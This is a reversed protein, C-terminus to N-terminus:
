SSAYGSNVAFVSALDGAAAKVAASVSDADGNAWVHSGNALMEAEREREWSSDCLVVTELDDALEAMALKCGLEVIPLDDVASALGGGAEGKVSDDAAAADNELGADSGDVPRVLDGAKKVISEDLRGGAVAASAAGNM